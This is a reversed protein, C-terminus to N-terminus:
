MWDNWNSQRWRIPVSKELPVILKQM